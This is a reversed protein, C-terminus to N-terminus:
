QAVGVIRDGVKVLGSRAAPGGPVLEMIKCYGDQSQLTAGIGVLSLNMAIEFSKMQEPGMYDSHPDYVQALAELYIELVAKDDFKRMTAATREARRTLTKVIEPEKKGALKEQLYEYRVQTNWLKKADALNAPNPLKKRDYEFSEDKTFDFNGAKLLEGAYAVRQDLRKLYREFVLHALQSDGEERTTEALTPRFKSFEDLDGQLFLMHSPDLTDLYRDLFRNALKDDLQQHAFQSSELIKSTIATIAADTTADDLKEPKGFGFALASTVLAGTLAAAPIAATNFPSKM